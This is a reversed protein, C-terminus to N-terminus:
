FLQPTSDLDLYTQGKADITEIVEDEEKKQAGSWYIISGFITKQEVFM